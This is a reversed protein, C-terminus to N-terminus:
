KAPYLGSTESQIVPINEIDTKKVASILCKRIDTPLTPLDGDEFYCLAKITLLSNFHAGYVAKAAALAVPLAIGEELLKAIDIYDKADARDQVVKIKTAALDLFSAVWFGPGDVIDPNAVRHMNVGGFFSVKVWDGRNVLCTLTNPSSQIRQADGLFAIERVLTDPTFARNTFFDFDASVRHGLRIALATGGYLVFDHPVQALDPWLALQAGTFLETHPKLVSM